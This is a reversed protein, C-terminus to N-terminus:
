FPLVTCSQPLVDALHPPIRREGRSRYARSMSGLIGGSSSIWCGAAKSWSSHSNSILGISEPCYSVNLIASAAEYGPVVVGILSELVQAPGERIKIYVVGDDVTFDNDEIAFALRLEVFQHEIAARRAEGGEIEHPQVALILPIQGQPLPLLIEPFQGM